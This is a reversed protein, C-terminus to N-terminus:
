RTPHGLEALVADEKAYDFDAPDITAPPHARQWEITRRLAEDQSVIESYGLERRIRTTDVVWHHTFDGQVPLRGAPVVVIEGDWGAAAVVRRTWELYSQGEPEAVNYIRGAARADAVALAAAWAVNQAYGRSWRWQAMVEDILMVRRNDEIRKIQWFTRGGDNAGYIMPFRLVTGPLAPDSM